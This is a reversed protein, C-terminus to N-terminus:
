SKMYFVLLEFGKNSYYESCRLTDVVPQRSRTDSMVGAM